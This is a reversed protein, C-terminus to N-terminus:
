KTEKIFPASPKRPRAGFLASGVRVITAGEAIALELDASMGMSLTDLARGGANLQDRLLALRRFQQSLTADDADAEPICMLGRLRLGPLVEIASVLEPLAEPSVGSKSAEGSVNVQVCCQLPARGAPRQDSLRAAVRLRDVSHVWDFRAAVARTKNAQLPGIFHWELALDALETLKDEAEQLYNEGFARQGQAAMAAVSAAPFTKSVALLQVEEPVRGVARCAAEIRARVAQLNDHTANM